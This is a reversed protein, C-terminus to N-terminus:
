AGMCGAEPSSLAFAQRAWWSISWRCALRVLPAWAVARATFVLPPGGHGESWLLGVLAGMVSGCGSPASSTWVGVYVWDFSEYSFFFVYMADFFIPRLAGVSPNWPSRGGPSGDRNWTVGGFAAFVM